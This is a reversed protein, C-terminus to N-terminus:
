ALSSTKSNKISSSEMSKFILNELFTRYTLKLYINASIVRLCSVFGETPEEDNDKM